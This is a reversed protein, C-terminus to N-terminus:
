IERIISGSGGCVPCKILTGDEKESEVEGSGDCYSCIDEHNEQTQRPPNSYINKM